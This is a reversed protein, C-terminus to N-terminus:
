IAPRAVTSLGGSLPVPLQPWRDLRPLPNKETLVNFDIPAPQDTLPGLRVRFDPWKPALSHHLIASSPYDIMSSPDLTSHTLVRIQSAPASARSLSAPRRRRRDRALRALWKPHPAARRLGECPARPSLGPRRPVAGAEPCHM